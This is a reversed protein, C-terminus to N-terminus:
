VQRQCGTFLRPSPSSYACRARTRPPLAELRFIDRQKGLGPHGAGHLVISESFDATSTTVSNNCCLNASWNCTVGKIRAPASTCHSPIGHARLFLYPSYSRTPKDPKLPLHSFHFHPEIRSIIVKQIHVDVIIPGRKSQKAFDPICVVPSQILYEAGEPELMRLMPLNRCKQASLFFFLM